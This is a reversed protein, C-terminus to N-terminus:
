LSICERFSDSEFSSQGQRVVQARHADGGFRTGPVLGPAGRTAQTVTPPQFSGVVSWRADIKARRWTQEVDGVKPAKESARQAVRDPM